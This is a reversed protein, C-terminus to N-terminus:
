TDIYQNIKRKNTIPKIISFYMQFNNFSVDRSKFNKKYKYKKIM